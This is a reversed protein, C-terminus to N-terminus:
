SRFLTLEEERQDDQALAAHATALLIVATLALARGIM